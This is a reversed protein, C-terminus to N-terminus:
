ATLAALTLLALPALEVGREVPQGRAPLRERAYRSGVRDALHGGIAVAAAGATVGAALLGGAVALVLATATVEVWRLDVRGEGLARIAAPHVARCCGAALCALKVPLYAANIGLGYAALWLGGDGGILRAVGLGALAGLATAASAGTWSAATSRNRDRTAVAILIRFGTGGVFLTGFAFGFGLAVALRWPPAVGAAVLGFVAAGGCAAALRLGLILRDQRDMM